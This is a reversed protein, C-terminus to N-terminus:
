APYKTKFSEPAGCLLAAPGIMSTVDLAADISRQATSLQCGLMLDFVERIDSELLPEWDEHTGRAKM